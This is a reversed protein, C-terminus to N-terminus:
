MCVDRVHSVASNSSCHRSIDRSLHSLASVRQAIVGAAILIIYYKNYSYIRM